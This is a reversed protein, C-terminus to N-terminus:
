QTYEQYADKGRLAGIADRYRKQLKERYHELPLNRAAAGNELETEASELGHAMSSVGTETLDEPRASAWTASFAGSRDIVFHCSRSECSRSEITRYLIGAPASRWEARGVIAASGDAALALYGGPVTSTAYQGDIRRGNSYLDFQRTSQVLWVHRDATPARPLLTANLSGTAALFTFAMAGVRVGHRVWQAGGPRTGRECGDTRKKLNRRLFQLRDAPDSFRRARWELARVVAGRMVAQLVV